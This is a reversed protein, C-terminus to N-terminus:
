EEEDQNRQKVINRIVRELRQLDSELAVVEEEEIQAIFGSPLGAYAALEIRSIKSEERLKKLAVPQM